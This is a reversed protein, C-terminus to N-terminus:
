EDKKEELLKYKEIESKLWDAYEHEGTVVEWQHGDLLKAIQMWEEKNAVDKGQSTRLDNKLWLLLSGSLLNCILRNKSYIKIRCKQNFRSLAVILAKMTVKHYTGWETGFGERTVITDAVKCELVYGYYKQTERLNASDVVIYIHTEQM